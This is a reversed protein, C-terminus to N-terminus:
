CRPLTLSKIIHVSLLLLGMQREIMTPCLIAMCLLCDVLIGYLFIGPRLFPSSIEILIAAVKQKNTQKNTKATSMAHPLEQALSQVSAVAM